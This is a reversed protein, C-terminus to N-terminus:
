ERYKVLIKVFWLVIIIELNCFPLLGLSFDFFTLCCTTDCMVGQLCANVCDLM